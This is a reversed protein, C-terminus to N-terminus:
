FTGTVIGGISGMAGDLALSPLLRVMVLKKLFNVTGCLLIKSSSITTADFGEGALRFYAECRVLFECSAVVGVFFRGPRGRFLGGDVDVNDLECDPNLRGDLSRPLGLLKSGPVDFDLPEGAAPVGVFDMERNLTLGIFPSSSIVGVGSEGYRCAEILGDL